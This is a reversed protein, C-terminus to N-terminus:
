VIEGLSGFELNINNQLSVEYSNVGLVMVTKDLDKQAFKDNKIGFDKILNLIEVKPRPSSSKSEKTASFTGIVKGLKKM